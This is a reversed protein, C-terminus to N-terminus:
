KRVLLWVDRHERHQARIDAIKARAASEANYAGVSVRFLGNESALIEPSFGKAVLQDNYQRANAIQRFSGIIVYYEYLTEPRDVPTVSEARVTIEVIPVEEVIPEEEIIPEEEVFPVEEIIDFEEVPEINVVQTTKKKSKCSFLLLSVIILSYVCFKM